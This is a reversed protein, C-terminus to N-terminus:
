PLKSLASLCLANFEEIQDELRLFKRFGNRADQKLIAAMSDVAGNDVYLRARNRNTAIGVLKDVIGVDEQHVFSSVSIKRELTLGYDFGRGDQELLYSYKRRVLASVHAHVRFGVHLDYEDYIDLGSSRNEYIPEVKVGASKCYAEVDPNVGHLVLSIEAKPFISRVRELLLKFPRLFVAAHHPDSIAIKRIERGSEFIRNEFRKDFFAIDGSFQSEFGSGQCFEQTLYGRTTFFLAKKTLASLMARTQESIQSYIGSKNKVLNLSTGSSMVGIPIDLKMVDQLFPYEVTGMNRRIAFGAFIVADASEVKEKVDNWAAARWVSDITVDDGKLHKIANITSHSILHDGINKSGHEPYTSVILYKKM